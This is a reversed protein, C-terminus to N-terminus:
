NNGLSLCTYQPQPTRLSSGPSRSLGDIEIARTYPASLPVM